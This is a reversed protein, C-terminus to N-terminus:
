RASHHGIPPLEARNRHECLYVGQWRGLSLRGQSIPITVSVGLLVSKIHAPMDDLGEYTHTYSDWDEPVIRSFYSEMDTRVEPEVCENLCLSASTHQIYLHAIGIRYQSIEPMQALIQGTVLHFGRSYPGLVIENQFWAM